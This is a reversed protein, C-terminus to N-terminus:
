ASASTAFSLRSRGDAAAFCAQTTKVSNWLGGIFNVAANSSPGVTLAKVLSSLGNSVWDSLASCVTGSAADALPPAGAAVLAAHEHHRGSAAARYADASLLTLVLDRAM